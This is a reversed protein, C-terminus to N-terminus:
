GCCFYESFLPNTPIYYKCNALIGVRNHSSQANHHLPLAMISNRGKSLIDTKVEGLRLTDSGFGTLRRHASSKPASGASTVRSGTKLASSINRKDDRTAVSFEPFKTLDFVMRAFVNGRNLVCFSRCSSSDIIVNSNYLLSEIPALDVNSKRCDYKLPIKFSRGGGILNIIIEDKLLGTATPLISITVELTQDEFIVGCHPNINIDSSKKLSFAVFGHAFVGENKIKITKVGLIPFKTTSSKSILTLGSNYFEPPDEKSALPLVGFDIPGQKTNYLIQCCSQESSGHVALNMKKLLNKGGKYCDYILINYIRDSFTKTGPIYRVKIQLDSKAEIYGVSPEIVFTGEATNSSLLDREPEFFLNQSDVIEFSAQYNGANSLKFSSETFPFIYEKGNEVKFLKRNRSQMLLPSTLDQDLFREDANNKEGQREERKKRILDEDTIYMDLRKISCNIDIQIIEAKVLVHYIYRKNIIYCLTVSISGVVHPNLVVELGGVDLAGIKLISPSVALISTDMMKIDGGLSHSIHIPSKLPNSNYFNLPLKNISHITVEGFDLVSTSVYIKDLDSASLIEETWLPSLGIESIHKPKLVVPEALKMFYKKMELDKSESHIENPKFQRRSILNRSIPEPPILGTKIDASNLRSKEQDCDQLLLINQKLSDITERRRPKM